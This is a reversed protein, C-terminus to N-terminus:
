LCESRAELNVKFVQLVFELQFHFQHSIVVPLFEFVSIVPEISKFVWNMLFNWITNCLCVGVDVLRLISQCTLQSDSFSKKPSWFAKSMSHSVRMSRSFSMMYATSSALYPRYFFISESRVSFDNDSPWNLSVVRAVNFLCCLYMSSNWLFPNLSNRRSRSCNSCSIAM